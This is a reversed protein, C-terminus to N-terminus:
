GSQATAAGDTGEKTEPLGDTGRMTLRAIVEDASEIEGYNGDLGLAKASGSLASRHGANWADRIDDAWQESRIWGLRGMEPEPLAEITMEDRLFIVAPNGGFIASIKDLFERIVAEPPADGGSVIVVGDYFYRSDRRSLPRGERSLGGCSRCQDLSTAGRDVENSGCHPCTWVTM